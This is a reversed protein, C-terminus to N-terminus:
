REWLWNTLAGFRTAVPVAPRMIPPTAIITIFWFSLITFIIVISSVTFTLDPTVLEAQSSLVEGWRYGDLAALCALVIAGVLSAIWLLFWERAMGPKYVDRDAALLCWILGVLQGLVFIWLSVVSIQFTAEIARQELAPRTLDHTAEFSMYDLVLDLPIINKPLFYMAMGVAVTWIVWVCFSIVSDRLRPSKM